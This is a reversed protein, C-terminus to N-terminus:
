KDADAIRTGGGDAGSMLEGILNWEREHGVENAGFSLQVGFKNECEKFFCVAVVYHIFDKKIEHIEYLLSLNVCAGQSKNKQSYWTRAKVQQDQQM